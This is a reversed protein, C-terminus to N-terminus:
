ENIIYGIGIVIEIIKIDFPKEAKERLYNFYMDIVNTGLDFNVEWVNELIEIRYVVRNNNNLTFELLKFERSTLRILNSCWYVDIANLNLTLDKVTLM